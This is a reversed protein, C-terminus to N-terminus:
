SARPQDQLRAAVGPTKKRVYAVLSQAQQPTILFVRGSANTGWIQRLNRKAKLLLDRSIGFDRSVSALSRAGARLLEDEFRYHQQLWSQLELAQHETIQHYGHAVWQQGLRRKASLIVKETYGIRHAAQALTLYTTENSQALWKRLASLQDKTILYNGLPSAKPWHQGLRKRATQLQSRSAGIQQCVESLTYTVEIPKPQQQIGAGEEKLRQTLAEMQDDSIM